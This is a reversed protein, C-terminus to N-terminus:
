NKRGKIQTTHIQDSVIERRIRGVLLLLSRAFRPFLAVSVRCHYSFSEPFFGHATCPFDSSVSVSFASLHLAFDLAHEDNEKVDLTNNVFLEDKWALCDTGCVLMVIIAVAHFYSFVEGRVKAVVFSSATAVRFRM